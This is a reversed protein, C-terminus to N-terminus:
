LICVEINSVKVDRPLDTKNKWLSVYYNLDKEITRGTKIFEDLTKLQEKVLNKYKVITEMEKRCNINFFM